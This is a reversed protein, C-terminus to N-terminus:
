MLRVFDKANGLALHRRRGGPVLDVELGAVSRTTFTRDGFREDFRAAAAARDPDGAAAALARTVEDLNDM